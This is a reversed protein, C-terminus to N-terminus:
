DVKGGVYWRDSFVFLDKRGLFGRQQFATELVDYDILEVTPDNGAALWRSLPGYGATFHGTVAQVNTIVMFLISVAGVAALAARKAAGGEVLWRHVTAGLGILLALYGPTGWHFHNGIRSYGSVATFAIIPPLGMCVLFRRAALESTRGKIARFPEVVVLIWLLPLLELAQGALNYLMWDVHIGKYNAGRRGQWLFSVWHHDANWVLVPAFCLLAILVGLYPGATALISRKDRRGLLYLLAGLGLFVATYKSLLALGLMVGAGIWAKIPERVPEDSVLIPALCYLTALWFFMLPGEPQYFIGASLSFVPALNLVVAAWFGQWPGFLRRGVLFMLWTTGAFLIIFPVRLALDSASAFLRMSLGAMLAAAPPQDFYSSSLHRAAAFYYAEGVGLGVSAGAVVRLVGSVVILWLTAAEPAIRSRNV